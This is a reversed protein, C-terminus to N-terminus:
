KAVQPTCDTTSEDKSASIASKITSGLCLIALFALVYFGATPTEQFTMYMICAFIIVCCSSSSASIGTGSNPDYSNAGNISVNCVPKNASM